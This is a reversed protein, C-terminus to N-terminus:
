GRKNLEDFKKQLSTVAAQNFRSTSEIEQHLPLLAVIVDSGQWLQVALGHKGQLNASDGADKLSRAVYHANAILDTINMKVYPNLKM